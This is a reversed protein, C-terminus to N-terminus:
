DCQSYGCDRCVNCGGEHILTGGCEPCAGAHGFSTGNFDMALQEREPMIWQEIAKAIADPCSLIKEGGPEWAPM